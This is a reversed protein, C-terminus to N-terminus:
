SYPFNELFKGDTSIRSYNIHYRLTSFASIDRSFFVSPIRWKLIKEKRWLCANSPWGQGTNGIYIDTTEIWDWILIVFMVLFKGMMSSWLLPMTNLCLSSRPLQGQACNEVLAQRVHSALCSQQGKPLLCMILTVHRANGSVPIIEMELFEVFTRLLSQPM